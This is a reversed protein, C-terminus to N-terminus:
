INVLCVHLNYRFLLNKTTVISLIKGACAQVHQALEEGMNDYDSLRKVNRLTLERVQIPKMTLEPSVDSIVDDITTVDSVSSRPRSSAIPFQRTQVQSHNESRNGYGNVAYSISSSQPRIPQLEVESDSSADANYLRSKQSSMYSQNMQKPVSQARIPMQPVHLSTSETTSKTIEGNYSYRPLHSGTQCPESIDQSSGYKEVIKKMLINFQSTEEQKGDVPLVPEALYTTPVHSIPINVAQQNTQKLPDGSTPPTTQSSLHHSLRNVAEIVHQASEHLLLRHRAESESGFVADSFGHEGTIFDTDNLINLNNFYEPQSTDGNQASHSLHTRPVNFIRCIKADFSESCSSAAGDMSSVNDDANEIEESKRLDERRDNNCSSTEDASTTEFTFVEPEKRKYVNRSNKKLSVFNPAMSGKYSTDSTSGDDYSLSSSESDYALNYKECLRACNDQKRHTRRPPNRGLSMESSACSMNAKLMGDLEVSSESCLDLSDDHFGNTFMQPIASIQSQVVSTHHHEPKKTPSKMVPSRVVPSKHRPLSNCQVVVTTSSQQSPESVDDLSSWVDGNTYLSSQSASMSSPRPRRSEAPIGDRHTSNQLHKTTDYQNISSATSAQSIISLRNINGTGNHANRHTVSHNSVYSSSQEYNSSTLRNLLAPPPLHTFPQVAETRCPQHINNTWFGSFYLM